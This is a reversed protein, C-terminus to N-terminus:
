LKLINDTLCILDQEVRFMYTPQDLGDMVSQMFINIM